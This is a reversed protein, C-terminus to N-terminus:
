KDLVKLNDAAVAVGAKKASKLLSKIMDGDTEGRNAVKNWMLAATNNRGSPSGAICSRVAFMAKSNPMSNFTAGIRPEAKGDWCMYIYDRSEFGHDEDVSERAVGDREKGVGVAVQRQQTEKAKVLYQRIDADKADEIAKDTIVAGGEVLAKILEIDGNRMVAYELSSRRFLGQKRNPDAGHKLMLRVAAVQNSFVASGSKFSTSNQILYFFPTTGCNGWLARPDAGRRLLAEVIQLNPGNETDSIAEGLPTAGFNDKYNADAGILLFFHVAKIDNSEISVLLRDGLETELTHPAAPVDIGTCLRASEEGGFPGDEYEETFRCGAIVTIAVLLGWICSAAGKHLSMIM